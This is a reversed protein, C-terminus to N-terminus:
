FTPLGMTSHTRSMIPVEVGPLTLGLFRITSANAAAPEVAGADEAAVAKSPPNMLKFDYRSTQSLSKHPPAREPYLMEPLNGVNLAPYIVSAVDHSTMSSVFRPNVICHIVHCYKM